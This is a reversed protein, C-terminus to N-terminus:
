VTQNYNALRIKQAQNVWPSVIIVLYLRFHQLRKCGFSKTDLCPRIGIYRDLGTLRDNSRMHLTHLYYHQMYIYIYIYVCVSRCVDHMLIGQAIVHQYCASLQWPIQQSGQSIQQLSRTLQFSHDEAPAPCQVLNESITKKKTSQM